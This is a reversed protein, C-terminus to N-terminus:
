KWTTSPSHWSILQEIDTWEVSCEIENMAASAKAAVSSPHSKSSSSSSSSNVSVSCSVDNHDSGINLPGICACACGVMEMPNVRRSCTATSKALSSPSSARNNFVISDDKYLPCFFFAFREHNTQQKENGHQISGTVGFVKPIKSTINSATSSVASPTSTSASVLWDWLLLCDDGKKRRAESGSDNPGNHNVNDHGVDLDLIVQFSSFDYGLGVGLAKTYAEKVAWRLYLERLQKEPSEYCDLIIKFEHSSFMHQFVVVFEQVTDYLSYNIEDFVVIDFGIMAGAHAAGASSKTAIKELQISENEASKNVAKNDKEAVEIVPGNDNQQKNDPNQQSKDSEMQIESLSETDVVAIRIMGVYPYQHSVSLPYKNEEAKRICLPSSSTAGHSSSGSNSGTIKIPIFPKGHKTRPLEILPLKREVSNTMEADSSEESSGSDNNAITSPSSSLGNKSSSLTIPLTSGQLSLTANAATPMPYTQHFARSKLLCSAFCLYRDSTKVYKLIQKAITKMVANNNPNSIMNSTAASTRTEELKNIANSPIVSAVKKPDITSTSSKAREAAISRKMAELVDQTGNDPSSRIRRGRPSQTSQQLEPPQLCQPQRAQQQRRVILQLQEKAHQHLQVSQLQRQQLQRLRCQGYEIQQELYHRAEYCQTTESLQQLMYALNSCCSNSSDSKSSQPVVSYSSKYRCINADNDVNRRVDLLILDLKMTKHDIIGHENTCPIKIIYYALSGVLDEM